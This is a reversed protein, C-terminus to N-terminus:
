AQGKMERKLLIRLNDFISLSDLEAATFWRLENSERQRHILEKEPVHVSYVIDTHYHSPEDGRTDILEELIYNPMPLLNAREDLTVTPEFCKSIDLGTEEKTERIAAELPNEYSEQHGGPCMWTDLKPHRMLLTKTPQEQNIILVSATYHKRPKLQHSM